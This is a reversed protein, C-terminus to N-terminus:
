HVADSVTFGPDTEQPDQLLESKKSGKVQVVPPAAGAGLVWPIDPPPPAFAVLIKPPGLRLQHCLRLYASSGWPRGATEPSQVVCPIFLDTLVSTNPSEADFDANM